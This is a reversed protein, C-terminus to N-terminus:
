TQTQCKDAEGMIDFPIKSDAYVQWVKVLHNEIIVRWAAPIRWTNKNDPSSIGHYTGGAYGLLVVTDGSVLIDDVEILYDPFWSFYAPWGKSMAEKSERNGYADIFVHDDTMLAIINDSEHSNIAAVFNLAIQKNM